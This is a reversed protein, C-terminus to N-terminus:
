QVRGKFFVTASATNTFCGTTSFVATIGTSYVDPPGSGSTISTTTNAPAVICDIPAIAAGGATPATVANVVMLFGAVAGTTAYVSYLNGPGAKLVHNSEAATSVVPTIGSGASSTPAITVTSSAGGGATNSCLNGNTDVTLPQSQGRIWGTAAGCSPVVTATPVQADASSALVCTICASVLLLRRM